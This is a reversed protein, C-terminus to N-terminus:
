KSMAVNEAEKIHGQKINEKKFNTGTTHRNIIRKSHNM